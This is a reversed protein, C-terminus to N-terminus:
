AGEGKCGASSVLFPNRQSSFSLPISPAKQPTQPCLQGVTGLLSLFGPLLNGPPGTYNGGQFIPFDPTPNIRSGTSWLLKYPRLDILVWLSILLMSSEAVERHLGLSQPGSLSKRLTVACNRALDLM